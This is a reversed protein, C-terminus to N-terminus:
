PMEVEYNGQAAMTSDEYAQTAIETLEVSFISTMDTMKGFVVGRSKCVFDLM